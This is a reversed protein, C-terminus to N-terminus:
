VVNQAAATEKALVRLSREQPNPFLRFVLRRMGSLFVSGAFPTAFLTVQRIPQLEKARGQQIRSALFQQIVLGGQSHGILAIERNQFERSDIFEGLANGLEDVPPIRRRMSMQFLRTPYTFPVFEFREAVEPDARLLSLLQDWNHPGGTFGHVLIVASTM